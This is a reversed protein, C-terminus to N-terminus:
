PESVRLAIVRFLHQVHRLPDPPQEPRSPGLDATVLAEGQQVAPRRWCAGIFWAAQRFRRRGRGACRQARHGCNVRKPSAACAGCGRLKPCSPLRSRQPARAQAQQRRHQRSTSSRRASALGRWPPRSSRPPGLRRRRRRSLTRRSSRTAAGAYAAQAGRGRQGRVVDAWAQPTKAGRYARRLSM